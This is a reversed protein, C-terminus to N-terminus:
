EIRYVKEQNRTTANTRWVRHITFGDVELEDSKGLETGLIVGVKRAM